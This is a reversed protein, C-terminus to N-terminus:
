EYPNKNKNLIESIIKYDPKQKHFNFHSCIKEIDDVTITGFKVNEISGKMDLELCQKSLHFIEEKYTKYLYTNAPTLLALDKKDEKTVICNSQSLDIRMTSFTSKLFISIELLPNLSKQIYASCITAIIENQVYEKTWNDTKSKVSKLSNRYDSYKDCLNIDNPNLLLIRFNRSENLDQSLKSMEPLTVARTYRGAGGSFFWFNSDLRARTFVEKLRNPEIIELKTVEEPIEIKFLFWAIIISVILSTSIKDLISKFYEIGENEPLPFHYPIVYIRIIGIIILIGSVTLIFNYRRSKHQLITKM